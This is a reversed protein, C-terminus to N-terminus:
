ARVGVDEGIRINLFLFLVLRLLRADRPQRAPAAEVEVAAVLVQEDHARLLALDV